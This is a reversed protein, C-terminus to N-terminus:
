FGYEKLDPICEPPLKGSDLDDLYTMFPKYKTGELGPWIAALQIHGIRVQTALAAKCGSAEFNKWFNIDHDIKGSEEEWSGGKGVTEYFLPRKMKTIANTRILTLGFHGTTAPLFKVAKLKDVPYEIDKGSGKFEVLNAMVAAEGRKIQMPFVADLEPNDRLIAYLAILHELRFWTDYDLTLIYEPKEDLTQLLGREMGQSWYAGHFKRLIIGLPLLVNMATFLNDTMALRPMSIVAAIKPLKVKPKVLPTYETVLDM